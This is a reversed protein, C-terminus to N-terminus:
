LCVSISFMCTKSSWENSFHKQRTKSKYLFISFLAVIRISKYTDVLHYLLKVCCTCVCRINCRYIISWGLKSNQVCLKERSRTESYDLKPLESSCSSFTTLVSHELTSSATPSFKQCVRQSSMQCKWSSSPQRPLSANSEDKQKADHSIACCYVKIEKYRISKEKTNQKRSNGNGNSSHMEVLAKGSASLQCM